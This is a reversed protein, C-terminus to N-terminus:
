QEKLNKLYESPTTGFQSKFLQRFHKEDNFGVRFMVEYVKYKGTSILESAINLRIQRVIEIPSLNTLSKVKNYFLSRSMNLEEHLQPISFDPNELNKHILRNVDMLFQEDRSLSTEELSFGGKIRKLYYDRLKDRSRLLNYISSVLLDPKFPKIIYGDAGVDLSNIHIHHSLNATILLIPIHSTALESKLIKCLGVGDLEPMIIDSIILSPHIERAKTLGEKGDRADEVLFHDKLLDQLYLSIEENDEVILIKKKSTSLSSIKSLTLTVNDNYGEEFFLNKKDGANVEPLLADKPLHDNGLPLLFTFETGEGLVSTVAISGKHLEVLKKTLALGIGTGGGSVSGKVQYFRDFIKDVQDPPIGKGQDKVCIILKGYRSHETPKTDQRVDVQVVKHGPSNKIANSLLNNLIMELKEKDYWATIEDSSSNFKITINNKGALGNFALCNEKIQEVINDPSANLRLNATEAKRFELLTNILQMLSNASRYMTHFTRGLATNKPERTILKDLPNLLLMLPTRLEHSINTFFRIREEHLEHEQARLKKELILNHRIKAEKLNYFYIWVIASALILGYLIFAWWSRWPPPRVTIHLSEYNDPWVGDENSARVKFLYEGSKLNRFSVSRQTKLNIWELDSGELQYQYNIKEPNAYHLGSFNITFVNQKHNLVLNKTNHIAIEEPYSAVTSDTPNAGKEFIRLENILIPTIADNIQIRNPVFYNLGGSGGFCIMQHNESRLVSGNSFEKDQVGDLKKYNTFKEEGPDFFSIGSNTSIWIRGIDDQTIAHIINNELGNSIDYLFFTLDNLDFKNLGGNQSGGIWLSNTSEEYYLAYIINCNLSGPNYRDFAFHRVEETIPDYSFLGAGYTGLWILGQKDQTIARIDYANFNNSAPIIHTFSYTEADMRALGAGNTGLWITAHRDEYISRIDNSQLSEPVNVEAKFSLFSDTEKQYLNLGNAYTGLWVRGKSDCLASLIADDSLDGKKGGAM